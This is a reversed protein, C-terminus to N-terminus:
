VKISNLLQNASKNSRAVTKNSQILVQQLCFPDSSSCNLLITLSTACSFSLPPLAPKLSFASWTCFRWSSSSSSSISGGGVVAGCSWLSCCVGQSGLEFDARFLWESEFFREGEGWLHWGGWWSGEGRSWRTPPPPSWSGRAASSLQPPVSSPLLQLSSRWPPNSTPPPLLQLISSVLRCEHSRPQLQQQVIGVVVVM